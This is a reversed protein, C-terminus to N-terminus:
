KVPIVLQSTVFPVAVEELNLIVARGKWITVKEQGRANFHRKVDYFMLELLFWVISKYSDTFLPNFLSIKLYKSRKSHIAVLCQRSFTCINRDRVWVVHAVMEENFPCM